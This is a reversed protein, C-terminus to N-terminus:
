QKRFVPLAVKECANSGRCGPFAYKVLLSLQRTNVM